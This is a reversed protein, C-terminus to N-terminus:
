AATIPRSCPDIPLKNNTPDLNALRSVLDASVAVLGIDETGAGFGHESSAHKPVLRNYIFLVRAIIMMQVVPFCFKASDRDYIEQLSIVDTLVDESSPVLQGVSSLLRWKPLFM